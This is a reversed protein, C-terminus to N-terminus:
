RLGCRSSATMPSHSCRGDSNPSWASCSPSGWVSDRPRIKLLIVEEIEKGIAESFYSSIGVQTFGNAALVKLSPENCWAVRAHLPREAVNELFRSLAARALGQGWFERGFWYSVSLLGEQEFKAIYGTLKDQLLVSRCYVNEDSKIRDWQRKFAPLGGTARVPAAM